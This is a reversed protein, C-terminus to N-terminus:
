NCGILFIGQTLIAMLNLHRLKLIGLTIGQISRRRAGRDKDDYDKILLHTPFTWLALMSSRSTNTEGEHPFLGELQRTLRRVQEQLEHIAKDRRLEHAQELPIGKSHCPDEENAM